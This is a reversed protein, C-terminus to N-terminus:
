REEGLVNHSLSGERNKSRRTLHPVQMRRWRLGSRSDSAMGVFCISTTEAWFPSANPKNCCQV